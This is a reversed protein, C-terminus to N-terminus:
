KKGNKKNGWKHRKDFEENNIKKEAFALDTYYDTKIKKMNEKKDPM